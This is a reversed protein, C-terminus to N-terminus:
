ILEKIVREEHTYSLEAKFETETSLFTKGVM